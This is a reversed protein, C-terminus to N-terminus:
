LFSGNLDVTVSLEEFEKAVAAIVTGKPQIDALSSGAVKAENSVIRKLDSMGFDEPILSLLKNITSGVEAATKKYVAASDLKQQMDAMQTQLEQIRSQGASINTQQNMGNDYVLFYYFAGIVFGILVARGMTIRNLAEVM